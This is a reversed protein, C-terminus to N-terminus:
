VADVLMQIVLQKITKRIKINNDLIQPSSIYTFKIKNIDMRRRERM